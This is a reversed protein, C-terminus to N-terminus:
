QSQKSIRVIPKSTPDAGLWLMDPRSYHGGADAFTKTKTVLAMDLDAIILQESGSEAAKLIRGDPGIIASSGAVPSGMIPSGATKM